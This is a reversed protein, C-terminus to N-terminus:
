ASFQEGFHLNEKEMIREGKQFLATAKQGIPLLKLIWDRFLQAQGM